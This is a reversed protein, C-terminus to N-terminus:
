AIRNRTWWAALGLLSFAIAGFIATETLQLSWFHSAPQYVANIFGHHLTPLHCAGGAGVQCSYDAIHEGHGNAPFQELV